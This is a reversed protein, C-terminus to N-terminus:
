KINHVITKLAARTHAFATLVRLKDAPNKIARGGDQGLGTHETGREHSLPSLIASRDFITYKLAQSAGTGGERGAPGLFFFM